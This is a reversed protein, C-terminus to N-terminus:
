TYTSFKIDACGFICDEQYCDENLFLVSKNLIILTYMVVSTYKPYAM